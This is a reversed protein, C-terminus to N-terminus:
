HLKCSLLDAYKHSTEFFALHWVSNNVGLNPNINKNRNKMKNPGIFNYTLISFERKHDTAQRRPQLQLPLLLHPLGDHRGLPVPLPFRQPLLAAHHARRPHHSVREVKKYSHSPTLSNVSFNNMINQPCDSSHSVEALLSHLM